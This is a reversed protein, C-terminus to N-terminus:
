HKGTCVTAVRPDTVGLDHMVQQFKPECRLPDFHVSYAYMRAVYPTQQALWAFEDIALDHRGIALFWSMTPQPFFPVVSPNADSRHPMDAVRRAIGQVDGKGDLADALANAFAQQEAGRGAVSRLLMARAIANDKREAALAVMRGMQRKSNPYDALVAKTLQLSEEDRGMVFLINAETGRVIESVPDLEAAHQLMRLASELDGASALSEGFWQYGTAFSPAIALAHQFLVRGTDFRLENYAVYGLVAYPEPLNPDLALAHEAADRAQPYATASPDVSWDPLVMKTLAIGAWAKAFKPDRALAARFDTEAARLNAEERKQWLALGKLYLDYAVVDQTSASAHAARHDGLEVQLQQTIAHAIEDQIAFVDKLQRDYTQSWVHFGNTADILQATIRVRDGQKRVSGELVMRVKLAHAIAPVDMSKGKFSFSSTRAAVKLGPTQALVNLIEESIGDSFYENDKEGSMNEFPLVAIAHADVDGARFAPAGVFYWLLALAVLASAAAYIRKNGVHSASKKVGEPTVDFVWALVLALPFGLLVVLIFVRLAWPPADFTPFAISAAQIALWAVVLYAGGVKFVKRQRLEALLNM